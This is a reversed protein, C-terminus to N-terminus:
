IDERAMGFLDYISCDVYKSFCQYKEPQQGVSKALITWLNHAVLYRYVYHFVCNGIRFIHSMTHWHLSCIVTGVCHIRDRATSCVM